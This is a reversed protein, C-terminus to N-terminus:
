KCYGAPHQAQQALDAYALICLWGSTLLTSRNKVRQQRWSVVVQTDPDCVGIPRDL